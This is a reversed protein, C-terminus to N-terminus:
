IGLIQKKKKDFEEKTILGKKLLDGLKDIDGLDSLSGTTISNGLNPNTSRIKANCAAAFVRAKKENSRNDRLSTNIEFLGISHPTAVSLYFGKKREKKLGIAFIGTLLVRSVTLRSRLDAESGAEVETIESWPILIKQKGFTKNIELGLESTYLSYSGLLNYEELGVDYKVTLSKVQKIKSLAQRFETTAQKKEARIAEYFVKLDSDKKWQRIKLSVYIANSFAIGLLVFSSFLVIQSESAFFWVILAIAGASYTVANATIIQRKMQAQTIKTSM